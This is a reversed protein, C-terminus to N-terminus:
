DYMYVLILKKTEHINSPLYVRCNMGRLIALLQLHEELELMLSSPMICRIIDTHTVDKRCPFAVQMVLLWWQAVVPGSVL